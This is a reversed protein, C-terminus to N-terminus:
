KMTAKYAKPTMGTIEKFARNFTAKSKFGSEFALGLFTKNQAEKSNLKQKFSNVRFHNVYAYFNTNMEANLVETIRKPSENIQTAVESLSLNENLYIKEHDFLTFLQNELASKRKHSPEILIAKKKPTFANTNQHVASLFVPTQQIGSYGVYVILGFLYAVNLFILEHLSESIVSLVSLTIDLVIFILIGKLWVKIWSLDRAELSAYNNKIHASYVKLKKFLLKLYIALSLIGLAPIIFAYIPIGDLTNQSNTWIILTVPLSFILLSLFFPLIHLLQAKLALDNKQYITDVYFILIPGMAFPTTLAFAMVLITFHNLISTIAAYAIFLSLFCFLVGSLLLNARKNDKKKFLLFILFFIISIGSSAIFNIISQFTHTM